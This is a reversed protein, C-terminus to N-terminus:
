QTYEFHEDLNPNSFFAPLIFCHFFHSAKLASSQAKKIRHVDLLFDEHIHNFAAFEKVTEVVPPAPAPPLQKYIGGFYHHTRAREFHM